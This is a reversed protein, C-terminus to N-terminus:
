HRPFFHGDPFDTKCQEIIPSLTQMAQLHPQNYNEHFEAIIEHIKVIYTICCVLSLPHVHTNNNKNRKSHHEELKITNFWQNSLCVHLHGLRHDPKLFRLARSITLISAFQGRKLKFSAGEQLKHLVIHGMVSGGAKILSALFLPPFSTAITGIKIRCVAYHAGFRM